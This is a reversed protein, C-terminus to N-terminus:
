EIILKKTHIGTKDYASIYYQGKPFTSVHITTSTANTTNLEDVLAGYVNFIKIKDVLQNMNIEIFDSSPNPYFEFVNGGEEPDNIATARYNCNAYTPKITSTDIIMNEDGPFNLLAGFYILMMEDTTSEGLSVNQPPTSPQFPNATTNDYTAEGYLVTGAPLKLPQRYIYQTQWHFDWNDIKVLPITDNTPTIAWAKVSRGILHMHPAASLITIPALPLNYRFHFTRVTNAPIYLPGDLMSTGHNLAAAITVNRLPASSMVVNFKTSDVLGASGQPYHIQAILKAGAPVRVGMGTPYFYPSQGPVWAGIMISANSGTGSYNTYGPGPDAADLTSPLTTSDQFFLVHHVINRNGPIIELGTLYEDITTGPDLVFCRYVDGVGSVTYTPIQLRYDPSTIVDATSYTPPTPAHGAVGEPAGNDAWIKILNLEEDTLYREHAFSRYSRDASWPPMHKSQTASKISLAQTSAETYTMLSFPGAGNPNHCNTCNSYLICAINDAWTVQAQSSYISLTILSLLVIKKM